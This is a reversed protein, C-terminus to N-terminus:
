RSAQHPDQADAQALMAEVAALAKPGWFHEYALDQVRIVDPDRQRAQALRALTGETQDTEWLLVAQSLLCLANRPQNELARDAYDGALQLEDQELHFHALALLNTRDEQQRLAEQFSELAADLHGLRRQAEGQLRAAWSERRVQLAYRKLMGLAKIPDLHIMAIVPEPRHVFRLGPGYFERETLPASAIRAIAKAARLKGLAEAAYLRVSSSEDGLAAILPEVARVDGLRGLAEAASRRVSRNEDGLAAILPGV